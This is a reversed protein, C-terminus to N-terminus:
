WSPMCDATPELTIDVFFVGYMDPNIEAGPKVSVSLTRQASLPFVIVALLLFSLKKTKM